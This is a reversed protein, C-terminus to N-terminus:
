RSGAPLPHLEDLQRKVAISLRRIGERILEPKAASFNLRLHRRGEQSHGNPAYFSDGPVFAVNERIAREFLKQADMGEALTVWLFLGGKPRTWTVEPPFSQALAELMVDRRECYIRRILKVHEDLFNDRAVEYAVIQTFTSTHLDAGQKLQM